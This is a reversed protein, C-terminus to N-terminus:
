DEITKGKDSNWKPTEDTWEDDFDTDDVDDWFFMWNNDVM